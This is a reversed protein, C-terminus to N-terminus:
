NRTGYSLVGGAILCAALLVWPQMTDHLSVSGSRNLWLVVGSSAGLALIAGGAARAGRGAAAVGSFLSALLLGLITLAGFAVWTRILGLAYGGSWSGWLIMAGSALGAAFLVWGILRGAM